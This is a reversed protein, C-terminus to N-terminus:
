EKNLAKRMETRVVWVMFNQSEVLDKMTLPRDGRCQLILDMIEYVSLDDVEEYLMAELLKLHDLNVKLGRLTRKADANHLVSNFEEQCILGNHNADADELMGLLSSKM